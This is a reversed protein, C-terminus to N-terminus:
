LVAHDTQRSSRRKMNPASFTSKLKLSAAHCQSVEKCPCLVAPLVEIDSDTICMIDFVERIAGFVEDRIDPLLDLCDSDENVYVEIHNSANVLVVEQLLTPCFTLCYQQLATHHNTRKEVSKEIIHLSFVLSPAALVVLHSM